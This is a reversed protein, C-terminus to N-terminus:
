RRDRRCAKRQACARSSTSAMPKAGAMLDDRTFGSHRAFCHSGAALAPPDPAVIRTVEEVSGAAGDIDSPRLKAALLRDGCFIYLPLYCYCDYYGHFFRGEQHGHLPDDTADLDLIIEEPPARFSKLFLAVFLSKIGAAEYSIKHYRTVEPRSLELRNLTSKGAVPACDKRRASLKGARVAMVPDHRLDDHDNLDEYGLAIGFVRQGVLTRVEHEILEPRRVDRFCEAFRRIVDLHGTPPGLFCRERMRRSRVGTLEPWLKAVALPHLDLCSQAVSQRCRSEGRSVRFDSECFSKRHNAIGICADTTSNLLSATAEATHRRETKGGREDFRVHRNGADPKGVPKVTLGVAAAWTCADFICCVWSASSMSGRSANRAVDRCRTGVSSSTDCTIMSTITSPVIHRCRTGYSFYASWGRLLRNLQDRVEPWSGQNSPVLLKGVKTKLRQVSKKSPSAGLYWHGDKRFRHPGFTYGLFDFSETRADKVSTKDENISLGLRTVVAKDM